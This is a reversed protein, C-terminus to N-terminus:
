SCCPRDSELPLAVDELSEELRQVQQELEAERSSETGYRSREQAHYRLPPPDM